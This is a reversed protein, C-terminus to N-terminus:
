TVRLAAAPDAQAAIRAPVVGAALGTVALFGFTTLVVSPSVKPTPIVEPLPLLSIGMVSVVAVVVGTVVGAAGYCGTPHCQGM